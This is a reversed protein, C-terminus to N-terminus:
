CSVRADCSYDGSGSGASGGTGGGTCGYDCTDGGMCTGCTRACTECCTVDCTADGCSRTYELTGCAPDPLTPCDNNARVTGGAKRAAATVFSEVRLADPNLRLKHM